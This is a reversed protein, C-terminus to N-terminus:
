RPHQGCLTRQFPVSLLSRTDHKCILPTVGEADLRVFPFPMTCCRCDEDERHDDDSASFFSDADSGDEEDEEALTGHQARLAVSRDMQIASAYVSGSATSSHGFSGQASHYLSMESQGAWSDREDGPSEANPAELSSLAFEEEKRGSLM